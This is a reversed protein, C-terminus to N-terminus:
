SCIRSWETLPTPAPLSPMVFKVMALVLLWYRLPSPWRRGLWVLGLVAAGVLAGQWTLHAVYLWWAEAARNLSDILGNM